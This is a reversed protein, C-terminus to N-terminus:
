DKLRISEPTSCYWRVVQQAAVQVCKGFDLLDNIPCKEGTPKYNAKAHAIQNRTSYISSGLAELAKVKDQSKSGVTISKLDKLFNPVIKALESAECCTIITQKIAERDKKFYNQVNVLNELESIYEADPELARPSLLKTRIAEYSQIRIVTQSVYEIVKTLYLIKVDPDESSTARNYLKLLEYIGKGLLLPRFRTDPIYHECRANTWNGDIYPRPSTKFSLSLSNNLEFLYAEFIEQQQSESINKSYRIEVFLDTDVIPPCYEDYEGRSAILVGFTTFGQTLSCYVEVENLLSKQLCFRKTSKELKQFLEKENNWEKDWEKILEQRLPNDNMEKILEQRLPNDNMETFKKGLNSIKDRSEMIKKRIEEEEENEASPIAHYMFKDTEENTSEIRVLLNRNSKCIKNEQLKATKLEEALEIFEKCTIIASEEWYPLEVEIESNQTIIQDEYKSCDFEKSLLEPLFFPVVPLDLKVKDNWTTVAKLLENKLEPPEFHLM